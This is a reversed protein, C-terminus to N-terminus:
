EQVRADELRFEVPLDVSFEHGRLVQPVVTSDAARTIMEQAAADLLAHGSSRTLSVGRVAAEPGISLRVQAAGSWGREVALAPYEQHAARSVAFRYQRLADADISGDEISPAAIPSSGPRISATDAAPRRAVPAPQPTEPSAAAPQRFEQISQTALVPPASVHRPIPAKRTRATAGSQMRPPAPPEGRSAAPRETLIANLPQVFLTPPQSVGAPWLVLAHLMVSVALAFVLRRRAPDAPVFRRHAGQLNM